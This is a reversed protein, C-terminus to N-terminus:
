RTVEKYRENKRLFFKERIVSILLVVVGLIASFIGIKVIMPLDTDVWIEM